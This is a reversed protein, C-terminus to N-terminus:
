KCPWYKLPIFQRIPRPILMFILKHNHPGILEPLTLQINDAINRIITTGQRYSFGCAMELVLIYRFAHSFAHHFVFFCITPDCMLTQDVRIM